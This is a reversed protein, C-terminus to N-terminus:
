YCYCYIERNTIKKKTQEHKIKKKKKLQAQTKPYLPKQRGTTLFSSSSQNIILSPKKSPFHLHNLKLRGIQAHKQSSSPTHVRAMHNSQPQTRQTGSLLKDINFDENSQFMQVNKM